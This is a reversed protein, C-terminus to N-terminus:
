KYGNYNLMPDKKCNDNSSLYVFDVTAFTLIPITMIYNLSILKKATKIKRKKKLKPLWDAVLFSGLKM